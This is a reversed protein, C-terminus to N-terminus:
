TLYYDPLYKWLLGGAVTLVTLGVKIFLENGSAFPLSLDTAVMGGAAWGLILGGVYILAPFRTMIRIVVTSGYVIIPVSVLMGFLLLGLYGGTAAVIGLVNDLSMLADAAIITKIAGLLSDKATVHVNEQSRGGILKIGIIVLLIGGVTKLYPIQLLWVVVAAMLFRLIIAGGTGYFIAKKQLDRPLNKAAMGIIISNDGGLALDILIINMVVWIDSIIETGM